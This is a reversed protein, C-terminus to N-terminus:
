SVVTRPTAPAGRGARSRRYVSSRARNLAGVPRLGGGTFRVPDFDLDGQAPDVPRDLRLEGIRHFRQLPGAVGVGFTVGGAQSLRERLERVSPGPGGDPPLWGLVVPGAGADYPLCTSYPQAFWRAAPLFVRHAAPLDLSTNCLLDQHAGPGYADPVRVALGFVDGVSEPLGAMRSFRALVERPGDPQLLAAGPAHDSAHHIELTGRCLVGQPHVGRTHRVASLAWFPPGFAAALAASPLSRLDPMRDFTDAAPAVCM